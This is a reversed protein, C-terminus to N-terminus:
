DIDMEDLDMKRLLVAKREGSPNGDTIERIGQDMLYIRELEEKLRPNIKDEKPHPVQSYSYCSTLLLFTFIIKKM